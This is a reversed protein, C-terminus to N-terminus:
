IDDYHVVECEQEIDKNVGVETKALFHSAVPNAFWLFLMMIVLKLSTATFGSGVILGGLICSTALADALASIQMRNLIFACRFNGIASIVFVSVGCFLLVACLILRIM